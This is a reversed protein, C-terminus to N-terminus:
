ERSINIWSRTLETGLMRPMWDALSVFIWAPQGHRSQPKGAPPLFRQTFLLIDHFDHHLFQHYCPALCPGLNKQFLIQLKLSFPQEDNERNAHCTQHSLQSLKFIQCSTLIEGASELIKPRISTEILWWGHRTLQQHDGLKLQCDGARQKFSKTRSQLKEAIHLTWTNSHTYICYIGVSYIYIYMCSM